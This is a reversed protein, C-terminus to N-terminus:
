IPLLECFINGIKNGIEYWNAGIEYKKASKM